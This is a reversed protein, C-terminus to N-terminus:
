RRYCTGTTCTSNAYTYAPAFNGQPVFTPAQTTYVPATQVRPQVFVRRGRGVPQWNMMRAPAQQVYRYSPAAVVNACTGGPCSSAPAGTPTCLAAALLLANM